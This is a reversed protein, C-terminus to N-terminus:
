PFAFIPFRNYVASDAPAAWLSIGGIEGEPAHRSGRLKKNFPYRGPLLHKQSFTSFKEWFCRLNHSSFYNRLLLIYM